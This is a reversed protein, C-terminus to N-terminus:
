SWADAHFSYTFDDLTHDLDTRVGRRATDRRSRLFLDAHYLGPM